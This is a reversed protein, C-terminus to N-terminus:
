RPALCASDKFRPDPNLMIKITRAESSRWLAPANKHGETVRYSVNYCRNNATQSAGYIYGQGIFAQLKVDPYDPLSFELDRPPTSDKYKLVERYIVSDASNSFVNQASIERGVHRFGDGIYSLVTGGVSGLLVLGAISSLVTVPHRDAWHFISSLTVGEYPVVPHNPAEGAIEDDGTVARRHKDKIM